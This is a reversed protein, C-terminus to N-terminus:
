FRFGIERPADAGTTEGVILLVAGVAAFGLGLGLSIDAALFKADVDDVQSQPCRPRCADLDGYAGYGLGAAVGFAILGAGGVGLLVVGPITLNPPSDDSESPPPELPGQTTRPGPASPAPLTIAVRASAGPAVQVEQRIPAEGDRVVEVVHKGATARFRNSGLPVLPDAGDIRVRAAAADVGAPATIAVEITGLVSELERQWLACEDRVQRPCTAAACRQLALYSVLLAGESRTQQATVHSDLCVDAEDALASSAVLSVVAAFVAGRLRM